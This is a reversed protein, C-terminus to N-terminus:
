LCAQFYLNSGLDGGECSLAGLMAKLTMIRRANERELGIFKSDKAACLEAESFPHFTEPGWGSKYGSATEQSTPFISKFGQLSDTSHM